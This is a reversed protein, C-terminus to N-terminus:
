CAFLCVFSFLSFVSNLNFATLLVSVVVLCHVRLVRICDFKYPERIHAHPHLTSNITCRLNDVDDIDNDNRIMLSETQESARQSMHIKPQTYARGWFKIIIKHNEKKGKSPMLVCEDCWSLESFKWCIKVMLLCECNNKRKESSWIAFFFKVLCSCIYWWASAFHIFIFLRYHPVCVFFLQVPFFM